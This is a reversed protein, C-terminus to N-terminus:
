RKGAPVRREGTELPLVDNAGIRIVRVVQRGREGEIRYIVPDAVPPRPIGVAVPISPEAREFRYDPQSTRVSLRPSPDYFGPWYGGLGYGYGPRHFGRGRPGGQFPRGPMALPRAQAASALAPARVGAPAAPGGAPRAFASSGLALLGGAICALRFVPIGVM